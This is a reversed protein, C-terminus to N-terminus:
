DERKTIIIQISNALINAMSFSVFAKHGTVRGFRFADIITQSSLGGAQFTLKGIHIYYSIRMPLIYKFKM